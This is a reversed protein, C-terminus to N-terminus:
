SESPRLLRIAKVLRAGSPEIHPRDHFIGLADPAAYRAHRTRISIRRWWLVLSMARKARSLRMSRSREDCNIMDWNLRDLM